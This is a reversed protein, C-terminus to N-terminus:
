QWFKAKATKKKKEERKSKSTPLARDGARADNITLSLDRFARCALISPFVTAMPAPFIQLIANFKLQILIVSLLHFTVAVAVFQIGDKLLVRALKAFPVGAHAKRLQQVIVFFAASDVM